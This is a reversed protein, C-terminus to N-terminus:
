LQLFSKNGGVHKMHSACVQFPPCVTPGLIIHGVFYTVGQGGKPRNGVTYM